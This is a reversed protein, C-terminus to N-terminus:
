RRSGPVNGTPSNRPVAALIMRIGYLPDNKRGRHGHLEQQVRRRVEDVAQIGLHRRGRTRRRRDLMTSVHHWVHEDVGLRDRRRGPVRRRGDGRAAAPDLVVGHEVDDRAPTRDRLHQRARPRIQNIASWSVGTTLLVRPLAVDEDQETCVKTPCMPEVCRWSRKRWILRVPRDLCPADILVVDRRGHSHAVVGCTHCGMQGPPSEVVVGLLSADEDRDVSLVHLGDLGVLLDCRTCYSSDHHCRAVGCVTPGSV